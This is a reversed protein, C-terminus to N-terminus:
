LLMVFQDCGVIGFVSYGECLRRFGLAMYGYHHERYYPLNSLATEDIDLVIIDSGDPQIDLGKLYNRAAETAGAVDSLYQGSEVYTAVYKQCQSPLSWRQLNNVEANWVLTECYSSTSDRLASSSFPQTKCSGLMLWLGVVLSILVIGLIAVSSALLTVAVSSLYVGADEM